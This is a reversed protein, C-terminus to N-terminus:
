PTDHTLHWVGVTKEFRLIVVAIEIVELMAAEAVNMKLADIRTEFVVHRGADSEAEFQRCAIVGRRAEIAIRLYAGAAGVPQEAAILHATQGIKRTSQRKIPEGVANPIM